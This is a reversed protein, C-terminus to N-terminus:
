RGAIRLARAVAAELKPFLEQHLQERLKAAETRSRREKVLSGSIAIGTARHVLTLEIARETLNPHNKRKSYGGGNLVYVHEPNLSWRAM